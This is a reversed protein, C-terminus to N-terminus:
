RTRKVRFYCYFDIQDTYLTHQLVGTITGTVYEGLDGYEEIEIVTNETQAFIYLYTGDEMLVTQYLLAIDDGSYTGPDQGRFAFSITFLQNWYGSASYYSIGGNNYFGKDDESEPTFYAMNVLHQVCLSKDFYYGLVEGKGEIIVQYDKKIEPFLICYGNDFDGTSVTFDNGAPNFVADQVWIWNSLERYSLNRDIRYVRLLNKYSGLMYQSLDEPLPLHITVHNNLEKNESSFFWLYNEEAVASLELPLGMGYLKVYEMSIRTDENFTNEQFDISPFLKENIGSNNNFFKVTRAQTGVVSTFDNYDLWEEVTEKTCGSFFSIVLLVPLLVRPYYILKGFIM